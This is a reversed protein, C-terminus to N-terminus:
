PLSNDFGGDDKRRKIYLKGTQQYIEQLDLPDLTGNGLDIDMLAEYDIAYGVPPHNAITMKIKLMSADMTQIEAIVKEVASEEMMTGRNYPMFFIYPCL